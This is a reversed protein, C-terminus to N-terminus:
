SDHSAVTQLHHSGALADDYLKLLEDVEEEVTRVRPTRAALAPLLFEEDLIREMCRALATSDGRPFLLGNVEHSVTEAMGGLDTALVPTKTAFAEHMVLPFDYWLSPVALADFSAYVAASDERRYVGAFEIEPLGEAIALVRRKYAEDKDLNGYIVVKFGGPRREHLMRAAELLVHVGKSKSIQGVFGFRIVDSRTKGDYRDLWQLEHGYPMVHIPRTAGANVFVSRVFESATICVNPWTLAESLLAKRDAMDAAMGRFGRQRTLQPFRVVKQLLQDAAVAPLLSRPWEYAKSGRMQCELCEMPTTAGSCNEGDSRLLNIRPCLFWFDTLSLVLPIGADKVERLIGASLRECSTVHVLDPPTDHLYRRLYAAVEPNDYLYRCPDPPKKWNLQLRRVPVGKYTTSEVGNLAFRGQEWTGGCLVQVAHGRSRLEVALGATYAQTGGWSKPPMGNSILLIKM